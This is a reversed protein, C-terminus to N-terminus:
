AGLVATILERAEAALDSYLRPASLLVPYLVILVAIIKAPFALSLLQLRPNIQNLMGITLDVLLLVAVAPFALRLAIDLMEGGMLVYAEASGPRVAFAGPPWTKFTSALARVVFLHLDFAFFLLNGLLILAVNLISADVQSTPDVTNVYSYGAQFGLIQAAMGFAEGLLALATGIALGIVLEKLVLMSLLPVVASTQLMEPTLGIPTGPALVAALILSLVIKPAPLAASFGPIRAMGVVGAVRFLVLAYNLLWVIPIELNAVPM